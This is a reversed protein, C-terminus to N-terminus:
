YLIMYTLASNPIRQHLLGRLTSSGASDYHESVFSVDNANNPQDQKVYDDLTAVMAGKAAFWSKEFCSCKVFFFLNRQTLLYFIDGEKSNAEAALAIDRILIREEEPSLETSRSRSRMSVAAM